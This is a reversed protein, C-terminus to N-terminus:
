TRGRDLRRVRRRFGSSRMHGLAVDDGLESIDSSERMLAIPTHSNQQLERAVCLGTKGTAGAVLINM